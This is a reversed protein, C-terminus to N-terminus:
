FFFPNWVNSPKGATFPLKASEGILLVQPSGPAKKWDACVGPAAESSHAPCGALRQPDAAHRARLTDQSVIFTIHCM